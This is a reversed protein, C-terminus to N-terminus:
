IEQFLVMKINECGRFEPYKEELARKLQASTMSFTQLCWFDPLAVWPNNSYDVVKARCSKPKGTFNVISGKEPIKGGWPVIFYNSEKPRSMPCNIESNKEM